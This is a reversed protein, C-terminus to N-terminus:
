NGNVIDMTYVSRIIKVNSGRSFALDASPTVYTVGNVEYSYTEEWGDNDPNQREKEHSYLM